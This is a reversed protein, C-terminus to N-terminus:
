HEQSAMLGAVLSCSSGRRADATASALGSMLKNYDDPPLLVLREQQAPDILAVDCARSLNSDQVRGCRTIADLLQEKRNTQAYITILAPLFAEDDAFRSQAMAIVNLAKTYNRMLALLTVHDRFGELSQQLYPDAAPAPRPPPAPAASAKGRSGRRRLAAPAARSSSALQPSRDAIDYQRDAGAYNHVATDIKAIANAILPTTAYQTTLAPAIKVLASAAAAYVRAVQAPDNQDIPGTVLARLADDRANVAVQAERFEPTARVAALWATSSAPASLGPYAADLYKGLGEKRKRAPRHNSKVMDLVKDFALSAANRLLGRFFTNLTEGANAGKAAAVGSQLAAQQTYRAMERGFAEVLTGHRREELDITDLGTGYGDDSYHARLALDIGAVDAQDEQERSLHQNYVELITGVIESKAWVQASIAALGKDEVRNVQLQGNNASVRHQALDFGIRSCAVINEVSAKLRRQQAERSFHALAIHSFEHALVWAVEDDSKAAILLGLPVVIVGDPKAVPGYDTKGIIRVSTPMPARLTWAGRIRTLMEMLARETAPMSLATGAYAGKNLSIRDLARGDSLGAVMSADARALTQATVQTELYKGKKGTVSFKCMLPLCQTTAAAPAMLALSTGALLAAGAACLQHSPRVV